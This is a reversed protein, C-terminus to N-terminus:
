SSNLTLFFHIILFFGLKTTSTKRKHFLAIFLCTALLLEILHYFISYLIVRMIPVETSPVLDEIGYEIMILICGLTIMLLSGIKMFFNMKSMKNESSFSKLQISLLFNVIGQITCLFGLVGLHTTFELDEADKKSYSSSSSGGAIDSSLYAIKLVLYIFNAVLLTSILSGVKKSPTTWDNSIPAHSQIILFWDLLVGSLVLMFIPSVVEHLIYLTAFFSDSISDADEILLFM